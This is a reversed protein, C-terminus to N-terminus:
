FKMSLRSACIVCAVMLAARANTFIHAQSGSDLIASVYYPTSSGYPYTNITTTGATISAKQAIYDNRDQENTLGVIVQPTFGNIPPSNLPLVSIPHSAAPNVVVRADRWISTLESLSVQSATQVSNTERGSAPLSALPLVVGILVIQISCPRLSLM